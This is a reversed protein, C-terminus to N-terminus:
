NLRYRGTNSASKHVNLVIFGTKLSWEFIALVFPLKVFTSLIASHEGQLMRCYNQGADPSLRDQFGIRARRKLPRKLCIISYLCYVNYIAGKTKLSVAARFVNIHFRSCM